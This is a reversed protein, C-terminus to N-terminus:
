LPCKVNAYEPNIWYPRRDKAFRPPYEKWALAPVSATAHLKGILKVKYPKQVIALRQYGFIWRGLRLLVSIAIGAIMAIMMGGQTGHFMIMLFFSLSIDFYLDYGFIRKPGMKLIHLLLGLGLLGGGVFTFILAEM